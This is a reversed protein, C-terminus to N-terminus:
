QNVSVLTVDANLIIKNAVAVPTASGNANANNGAAMMVMARPAPQPTINENFNIDHVVYHQTSFIKNLQVLQNQVQQYVQLRLQTRAAETEALTPEFVIDQITFTEGPKSLSKAADRLGSLASESLRTQAQVQLQELGSDNASRNFQTIHWDASALKNLKQLIDDHAKALQDENMTADVNVDVEATTTTVWQEASTQFSVKNLVPNNIIPMPPIPEAHGLMPMLGCLVGLWLYQGM